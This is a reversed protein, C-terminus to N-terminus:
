HKSIQAVVETLKLERKRERALRMARSLTLNGHAVETALGDHHKRLWGASAVYRPSVGFLKALQFDSRQGRLRM